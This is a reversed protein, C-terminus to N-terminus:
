KIGEEIGKLIQLKTAKCKASNETAHSSIVTQHPFYKCAERHCITISQLVNDFCVKWPRDM